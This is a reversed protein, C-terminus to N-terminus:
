VLIINGNHTYNEAAATSHNVSVIGSCVTMELPWDDFMCLPSHM